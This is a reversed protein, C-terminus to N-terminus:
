SADAAGRTSDCADACQVGAVRTHNVIKPRQSRNRQPQIENAHGNGEGKNPLPTLHPHSSHSRADTLLRVTEDQDVVLARRSARMMLRKHHLSNVLTQPHDNTNHQRAGGSSLLEFEFLAQRTDADYATPFVVGEQENRRISRVMKKMAEVMKYQESGPRARLYETPVKVMPLGALDREVGVSEFEELRKKYYWPRYSNRLISRGEPNGKHHGFRFLLSRSMPIVRTKYDPRPWSSWRRRGDGTEDFIWRQLTEQARIPMKRWGVLGDSYKSRATPRGEGM